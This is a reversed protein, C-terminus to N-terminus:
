GDTMEKLREWTLAPRGPVARTSVCRHDLRLRKGCADCTKYTPEARLHANESLRKDNPGVRVYPPM